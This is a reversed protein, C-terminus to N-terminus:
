EREEWSLLGCGVKSKILNQILAPIYHQEDEVMVVERRYESDIEM